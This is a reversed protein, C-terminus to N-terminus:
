YSTRHDALIDAKTIGGFVREFESILERASILQGQVKFRMDPPSTNIGCISPEGGVPASKHGPLEQKAFPIRIARLLRKLSKLEAVLSQAFCKEAQCMTRVIEFAGLVWLWFQGYSGNTPDGIGDVLRNLLRRGLERVIQSQIQSYISFEGLPYRNAIEDSIRDADM